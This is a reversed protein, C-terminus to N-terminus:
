KKLEKEPYKELEFGKIGFMIIDIMPVLYTKGTDANTVPMLGDEHPSLRLINKLGEVTKFDINAVGHKTIWFKVATTIIEKVKEEKM